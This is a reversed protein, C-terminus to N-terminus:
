GRWASTGANSCFPACTSPTISCCRAPRSQNTPSNKGPRYYKLEVAFLRLDSSVFILDVQPQAVPASDGWWKEWDSYFKHSALNVNPYVEKFKPALMERLCDALDNEDEFVTM